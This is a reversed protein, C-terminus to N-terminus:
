RKGQCLNPRVSSKTKWMNNARWEVDLMKSGHRCTM